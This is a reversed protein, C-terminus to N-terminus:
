DGEKAADIRDDVDKWYAACSGCIRPGNCRTCLPLSEVADMGGALYAAAARREQDACVNGDDDCRREGEDELTAGCEDCRRGDLEPAPEREIWRDLEVADLVYPVTRIWENANM